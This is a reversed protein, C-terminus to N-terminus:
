WFAMRPEPRSRCRQRHPKVREFSRGKEYILVESTDPIVRCSLAKNKQFVQGFGTRGFKRYGMSTAAKSRRAM